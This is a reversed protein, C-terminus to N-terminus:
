DKILLTIRKVTYEYIDYGIRNIVNLARESADTEDKALCELEYKHGQKSELIVKYRNM